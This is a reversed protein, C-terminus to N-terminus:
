AKPKIKIEFRKKGREIFDEREIYNEDSSILANAFKWLVEWAEDINPSNLDKNEKGLIDNSNKM